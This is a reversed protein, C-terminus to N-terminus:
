LERFFGALEGYKEAKPILKGSADRRFVYSQLFPYSGADSVFVLESLDFFLVESVGLAAAAQKLQNAAMEATSRGQLFQGIVQHQDILAAGLRVEAPQFGMATLIDESLPVSYVNERSKDGGRAAISKGIDHLAMTYRMLVELNRVGQPPKMRHIGHLKKQEEYVRLVRVTHQGITYGEATGSLEGYLFRMSPGHILINQYRPDEAYVKELTGDAKLGELLWRDKRIAKDLYLSRFISEVFRAESSGKM